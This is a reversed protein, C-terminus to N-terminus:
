EGRVLAAAQQRFADCCGDINLSRQLGTGVMSVAVGTGHEPCRLSQVTAQAKELKHQFAKETIQALIRNADFHVTSKATFKM